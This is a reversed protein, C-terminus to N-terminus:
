REDPDGAVTFWAAPQLVALNVDEYRNSDLMEVFWTYQNCGEHLRVPASDRNRGASADAAEFIDDFFVLRQLDVSPFSRGRSVRLCYYADPGSLAALTTWSVSAVGGNWPIVGVPRREISARRELYAALLAGDHRLTRSRRRVEGSALRVEITYPGDELFGRRDFAMFWAGGTAGDVLYGNLNRADLAEHVAVEFRYGGPGSAVISEVQGHQLAADLIVVFKGMRLGDTQADAFVQTVVISRIGPPDPTAAM